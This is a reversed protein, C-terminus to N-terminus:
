PPTSLGTGHARGTVGPGKQGSTENSRRSRYRAKELEVVLM